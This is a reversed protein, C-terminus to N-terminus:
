PAPSAADSAGARWELIAKIGLTVLAFLTLLSAVAFSGAFDYDNYLVEVHLPMTDTYGIIHGSIVSVAGFEGIARGNCLLIGYLLGWKVNPLTVRLFTQWGSAGLLLAAEEEQSGQEQMVPILERAVFPLTVFLTALIVGPIAFVIKVGHAELWPGLWGQLGFLLVFVMGAIVPSVALPLDALAVLLAHGRVKGKTIAWAAALGFLVNLPVAIGAVILTLKLAYLLDPEQLAAVYNAAGKRFAEQFVVFLPLGLFLFLYALAVAILLWRAGASEGTAAAATRPRTRPGPAIGHRPAPPAITTSM